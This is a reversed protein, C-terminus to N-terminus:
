VGDEVMLQVPPPSENLMRSRPLSITESAEFVQESNRLLHPTVEIRDDLLDLVNVSNEGREKGRGRRSTATGATILPVGSGEGPLLDRSMAVQMRHLHGSLVVDVGMEEIHKLIGPAAPLPRGGGGTSKCIFHHHIVLVRGGLTPENEFSERAFRLQARTIRGGVIASWPSASNLAVVTAGPVVTVSDLDRPINRSWSRYPLTLREWFRYLPVDHNGPTVILPVRPLEELFNWVAQFERAKARQTLDGSIVVLNPTVEFALQRLAQAARPRFPRGMQLDSGHLIRLM